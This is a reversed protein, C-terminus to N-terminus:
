KIQLWRVICRKRLERFLWDWGHSRSRRGFTEAVIQNLRRGQLVRIEVSSGSVDDTMRITKLLRGPEPRGVRDSPEGALRKRAKAEVARM